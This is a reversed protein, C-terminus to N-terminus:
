NLVWFFAAIVVALQTLTGPIFDADSQISKQWLVWKEILKNNLNLFFYPGEIVDPLVALLGALFIIVAKKIDPLALSAIILGSTIALAADAAVFLTSKKTVKGFKKKETFLHPNWHPVKDLVFHSGFALPFAILPNVVKAAISAGVIFHPTELM